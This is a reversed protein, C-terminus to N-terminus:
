SSGWFQHYIFLVVNWAMLALKLGALLAIALGLQLVPAYGNLGGAYSAVTGFTDAMAAADFDHRPLVSVLGLIIGVGASILAETIM